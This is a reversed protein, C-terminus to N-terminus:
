EESTYNVETIDHTTVISNDHVTDAQPIQFMNEEIINIAETITWM